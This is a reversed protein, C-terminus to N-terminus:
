HRSCSLKCTLLSCPKVWPTSNSSPPTGNAHCCFPSTPPVSLGSVLIPAVAATCRMISMVLGMRGQGGDLM